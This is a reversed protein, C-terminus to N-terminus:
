TARTDARTIISDVDSFCVRSENMHQASCVWAIAQEYPYRVHHLFLGLATHRMPSITATEAPSIPRHTQTQSTRSWVPFAFPVSVVAPFHNRRMHFNLRLGAVTRWLWSYMLFIDFAIESANIPKPAETWGDGHLLTYLKLLIAATRRIRWHASSSRMRNVGYKRANSNSITTKKRKWKERRENMRDNRKLEIGHQLQQQQKKTRNENSIQM